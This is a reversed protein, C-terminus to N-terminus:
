LSNLIRQQEQLYIQPDRYFGTRWKRYDTGSDAYYAEDTLSWRWDVKHYLGIWALTDNNTAVAVLQNMESSNHVTVLDTFAERCYIQADTWNKADDVYHYQHHLCASFTLWGSLCFFGLLLRKM